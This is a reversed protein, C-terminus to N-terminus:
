NGDRGPAEKERDWSAHGIGRQKLAYKKIKNNETTPLETVYEVFRPIAFYAIRSDLHQILEAYVLTKGPHLVIFAAVDEEGLESPVGVVACHLIAPHSLIAQEVEWSSINEGRRRISDSLRDLFYFVGNEDVKVRDGTHFWLNKWASVTAEPNRFYGSAMSFPERSRIVFEGSEGVPVEIDQDDVVKAEFEPLVRGMSGPVYNGPRNCCVFNTETSGYGDVLEVGFRTKFRDALEQSTAPSLTNRLKHGRDLASEPQKLLIYIMSGLLYTVTADCDAVQQLFRSASFRSGFCYTAGYLLVQWLSNLANTHFMPLVTYAVDESNLALSEGTLIGWWFFQAHPCVVGKSPGTTGSTYMIALPDSPAVAQQPLAERGKRWQETAVGFVTRPATEDQVGVVWLKQLLPLELELETLNALFEGGVVIAAPDALILMQQLQSGRFATNIPVFVAGLWGAGFFLELAEICNPLLVVVRDSKGIGHQSLHAAVLAAVEPADGYSLQKGETKIFIKDGLSAANQLVQPFTRQELPLKRPEIPSASARNQQTDNVM